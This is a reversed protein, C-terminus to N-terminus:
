KINSKQHDEIWYEISSFVGNINKLVDDDTFRLVTFGFKEIERQRNQDHIWVDTHSHTIGDIEIVLMLEMCMFDVVYNLLPRQRRFQFGKM